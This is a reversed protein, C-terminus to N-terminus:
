NVINIIYSFRSPHASQIIKVCASFELSFPSMLFNSAYALFQYFSSLNIFVSEVAFILFINMVHGMLRLSFILYSNSNMIHDYRMLLLYVEKFLELFVSPYSM